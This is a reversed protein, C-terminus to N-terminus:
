NETYPTNQLAANSDLTLPVSAPARGAVTVVLNNPWCCQGSGPCAPHDLKSQVAQTCIVIEPALEPFHKTLKVHATHVQESCLFWVTRHMYEYM